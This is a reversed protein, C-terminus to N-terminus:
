ADPSAQVQIGITAVIEAVQECEDQSGRHVVCRGYHDVEWAEIYAEQLTCGTAIVLITIVEEFTNVENDFVTVVWGDGGTEQTAIEEVHKKVPSDIRSSRVPKFYQPTSRRVPLGATRAARPSRPRTKDHMHYSREKRPM